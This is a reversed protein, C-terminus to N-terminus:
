KFSKAYESPTKGTQKKFVRCFYRVDLFGSMEATASVTLKDFKLLRMANQIRLYSLYGVPSHGTQGNFLKRFYAPSYSIDRMADSVSFEPDTLHEAMISMVKKVEVNESEKTQSRERIAVSAAYALAELMEERGSGSGFCVDM